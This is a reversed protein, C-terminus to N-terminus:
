LMGLALASVNLRAPLTFIPEAAQVQTTPANRITIRMVMSTDADVPDGGPFPANADNTVLVDNCGPYAALDVVIDARQAVGLLVSTVRVPADLYGGDSGIQGLLM